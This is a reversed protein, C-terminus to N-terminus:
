TNDGKVLMGMDYLKEASDRVRGNSMIEVASDVISRKEQEEKTPLPMFEPADEIVFCIINWLGTRKFACTDSSLVVCERVNTKIGWTVQGHWGIPPWGTGDWGTPRDELLWGNPAYGKGDWEIPRAIYYPSGWDMHRCWYFTGDDGWVGTKICFLNANLDYHTAAAPAKKWKPKKM